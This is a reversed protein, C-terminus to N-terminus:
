TGVGLRDWNEIGPERVDVSVIRSNPPATDSGPFGAADAPRGQALCAEVRGGVDQERQHGDDCQHDGPSAPLSRSRHDFPPVASPM